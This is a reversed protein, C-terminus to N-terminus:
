KKQNLMNQKGAPIGGFISELMSVSRDEAALEFLGDFDGEM